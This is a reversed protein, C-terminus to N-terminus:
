RAVGSNTTNGAATGRKRFAVERYRVGEMLRNDRDFVADPALQAPGAELVSDFEKSASTDCFRFNTTHLFLLGRPKLCRVMETVTREFDEFRLLPDCRRAGTAALDGHCLVALCFIADYSEAQEAETTAAAAFTVNACAERRARALCHAINRPDIDIGKIAASPFYHRLTFV